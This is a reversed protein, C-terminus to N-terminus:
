RTENMKLRGLRMGLGYLSLHASPSAGQKLEIRKGIGALRPIRHSVM